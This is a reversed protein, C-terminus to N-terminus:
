QKKKGAQPMPVRAPDYVILIQSVQPKDEIHVDVDVDKDKGKKKPPAAAPADKKRVLTVQVYQETQIEGFEAKYGPLKHDPGKLEDLEKKTYKKVKGKDDFQEPPQNNRVVVEDIGTVEVDKTKKEMTYMTAQHRAIELQASQMAARDRRAAAQQMRAQAQALGVAAGPNLRPQTYTVVLRLAKRDEYVAAVKGVLVGAKIMKESTETADKDKGDPKKDAGRLPGVVFLVPLLLAVVCGLLRRM